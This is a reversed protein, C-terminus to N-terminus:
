WCDRREFHTMLVDRRDYAVTHMWDEQSVDPRGRRDTGLVRRTDGIVGSTEYNGTNRAVSQGAELAPDVDVGAGGQAGGALYTDIHGIEAALADCSLAPDRPMRAALWPGTAAEVPDELTDVCSNRAYLGMLHDRREVAVRDPDSATARRQNNSQDRGFLNQAGRLIGTAQRNGSRRAAVEAAAMGQGADIGPSGGRQGARWRDIEGIEAELAQCSLNRDGPDRAHQWPRSQAWAGSMAFIAATLAMLPPAIVTWRIM